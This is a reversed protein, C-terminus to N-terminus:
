SGREPEYVKPLGQAPLVASPPGGRVRHFVVATVWAGYALLWLVKMMVGSAQSGAVAGILGGGAIVAAVRSWQMHLPYARQGVALYLVAQVCCALLLAWAAGQVGMTPTFSVNGVVVAALQILQIVPQWVTQEAMLIALVGLPVLGHFFYCAVMIPLLPLAADYRGPPSFWTVVLPGLLLVSVAVLGLAAVYFTWARGLFTRADTREGTVRIYFPVFAPKVSDSFFRVGQGLQNALSYFGIEQLSVWKDLFFRDIRSAVAELMSSPVLPLALQLPRLLDLGSLRFEAQTLYWGNLVVGSVASSLIQMWLIGAVGWGTLVAWATLGTGLLFTVQSAAVYAKSQERIRLLMMPCVTLTSLFAWWLGLRGYPEFPVQVLVWRFLPEGVYDLLATMALASGTACLWIAGLYRPGAGDRVWEYYYRTITAPLGLQLVPTLVVPLLAVLSFLGYEEPSLRWLYLPLLIFVGLKQLANGAGYMGIQGLLRRFAQRWSLAAYGAELSGFEEDTM